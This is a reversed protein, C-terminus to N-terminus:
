TQDQDARFQVLSSAPQIADSRSLPTRDGQLRRGQNHQHGAVKALPTSVANHAIEVSVEADPTLRNLFNSQRFWNSCCVAAVIASMRFGDGTILTFLYVAM